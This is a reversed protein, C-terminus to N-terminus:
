WDGIKKGRFDCQRAHIHFVADAQARHVLVLDVYTGYASDAVVVDDSQLSAYLRSLQWESTNFAAIAVDLGAGTTGCVV